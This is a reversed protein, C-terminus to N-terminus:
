ISTMEGILKDAQNVDAEPRGIARMYRAIFQAAQKLQFLSVGCSENCNRSHWESAKALNEILALEHSVPQSM